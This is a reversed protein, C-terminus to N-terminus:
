LNAGCIKLVRSALWIGVGVGRTLLQKAAAAKGPGDEELISRMSREETEIHTQDTIPRNARRWPCHPEGPTGESSSSSSIYGWIACFLWHQPTFHARTHTEM